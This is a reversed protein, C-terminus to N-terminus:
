ASRFLTRQTTVDNCWQRGSFWWKCAIATATAAAITTAAVKSTGSAFGRAQGATAGAVATTQQSM